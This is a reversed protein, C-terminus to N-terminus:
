VVPQARMVIAKLMKTVHIEEDVIQSFKETDVPVRCAKLYYSTLATDVYEKNWNSNIYEACNHAVSNIIFPIKYSDFGLVHATREPDTRILYHYYVFASKFDVQGFYSRLLEVFVFKATSDAVYYPNMLFTFVDPVPCVSNTIMVVACSLSEDM